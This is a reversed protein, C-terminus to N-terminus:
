SSLTMETCLSDRFDYGESGQFQYIELPSGKWASVYQVVRLLTRSLSYSKFSLVIMRLWFWGPGVYWCGTDELVCRCLGDSMDAFSVVYQCLERCISLAWSMNVFSVVYWCLRQYMLVAQAVCGRCLWQVAEAFCPGTCQDDLWLVKANWEWDDLYILFEM